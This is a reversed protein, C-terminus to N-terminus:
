INDATPMGLICALLKTDKFTQIRCKAEGMHNKHLDEKFIVQYFMYVIFQPSHVQDM